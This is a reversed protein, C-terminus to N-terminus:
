SGFGKGDCRGESLWNDIDSKRFRLLKGVRLCPIRKRMSYAYITSVPVGLYEAVQQVNMLGNTVEITKLEPM